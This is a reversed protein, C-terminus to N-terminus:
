YLVCNFGGVFIHFIYFGNKWLTRFVFWNTFCFCHYICSYHTKMCVYIQWNSDKLNLNNTLVSCYQGNINAWHYYLHLGSPFVQISVQYCCIYIDITCHGLWYDSNSTHYNIFIHTCSSVSCNWIGHDGLGGTIIMIVWGWLHMKFVFVYDYLLM